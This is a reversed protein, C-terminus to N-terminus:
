TTEAQAAGPEVEGAGEFRDIRHLNVLVVADRRELPEPDARKIVAETIPVFHPNVRYLYGSAQAGPPVHVSGSVQFPGIRVDV